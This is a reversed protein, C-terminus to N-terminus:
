VTLQLVQYCGSNRVQWSYKLVCTYFVVARCSPDNNAWSAEESDIAAQIKKYPLHWHYQCDPREGTEKWIKEQNYTICCLGM